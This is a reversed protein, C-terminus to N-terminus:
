RRGGGGRAGGGSRGSSSARASSSASTSAHGRASAARDFSGSGSRSAGSFAGDSRSASSGSSRIVNAGSRSDVSSRTGGSGSAVRASSGARSERSPTSATARNSTGASPRSASARDSTGYGRDTAAPRQSASKNGVRAQADRVEKSGGPKAGAYNSKGKWQSNGTSPRTSARARDNTGARNGTGARDSVGARNGARDSVGARNNNGIPSNSGRKLNSNGNFNNFYNNNNNVYINTNRYNNHYGGHPAYGYAPRYGPYVPRYAYAPPYFPRPGMYVAGYGWSPYCYNNSIAAGVAIGVGFGLLAGLVADDDDDDQVVTTTTAAPPTTYVVAPNYQPVYVVEPNTPRVEVIKEGNEVKTEVTQEKGSKLNGVNLASTRLRQIADLVGKQDSTFAAGLQKTWDLEQCMMDVVTPFHVLARMATGFGAKQAAADLADGTLDPNELLWNGADLVEQSNVSAALVQAVLQDPYLAIPAVLEELADPAWSTQTIAATAAGGQAAPPAEAGQKDSKCGPIALLLAALVALSRNLPRVPGSLANM